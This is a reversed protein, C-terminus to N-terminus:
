RKGMSRRTGFPPRNPTQRTRQPKPHELSATQSASAKTLDALSFPAATKNSM